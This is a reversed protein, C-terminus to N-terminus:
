VLPLRGVLLVNQAGSVLNKHLMRVDLTGRGWRSLSAAPVVVDVYYPQRLTVVASGDISSAILESWPGSQHYGYDEWGRDSALGLEVVDDETWGEPVVHRADLSFPMTWDGHLPHNEFNFTQM